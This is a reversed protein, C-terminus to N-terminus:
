ALLGRIVQLHPSLNSPIMAFFLLNRLVSGQCDIEVLKVLILEVTQVLM